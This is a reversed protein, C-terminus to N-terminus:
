RLASRVSGEEPGCMMDSLVVQFLLWDGSIRKQQAPEDYGLRKISVGVEIKFSCISLM